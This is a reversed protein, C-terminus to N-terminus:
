ASSFTQRSRSPSPTVSEPSITESASIPITSILTWPVVSFTVVGCPAVSAALASKTQAEPWTPRANSAIKSIFSTSVFNPPLAPIAAQSPSSGILARPKPSTASRATAIDFSGASAFITASAAAAISTGSIRSM